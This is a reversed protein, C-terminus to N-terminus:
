HQFLVVNQERFLNLRLALIQRLLPPLHSFEWQNCPLATTPTAPASDGSSGAM